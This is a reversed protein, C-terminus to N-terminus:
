KITPAKESDKNTSIIQGGGVAWLDLDSLDVVVTVVMTDFVYRKSRVGIVYTQGATIGTFRYYGFNNSRVTRASGFGDTLTVAAGEVPREDSGFIRGGVDVRGSTPALATVAINNIGVWEDPTSSGNTDAANTTIIRVQVMPQNGAAAPLDVLKSTVLGAQNPGLTADAIYGAPINIFPGTNGVRFQLAVQTVANNSGGDIDTVQYSVSVIPRNLTNLYLVLYPNNNTNGQLGLSIYPGSDFEAIGGANFANPNGKNAAVNRPNAPLANGAFETGLITQPDVGHTATLNLGAYGEISPVNSWDNNSTILDATSASLNFSFASSALNAYNSNARAERIPSIGAFHDDGQPGLFLSGCALVVSVVMTIFIRIPRVASRLPSKKQPRFM